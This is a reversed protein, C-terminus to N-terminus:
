VWISTLYRGPVRAQRQEADEEVVGIRGELTRKLLGRGHGRWTSGGGASVRSEVGGSRIGRVGRQRGGDVSQGRQTTRGQGCPRRGRRGRERTCGSEVQIMRARWRPAMPLIQSLLFLCIEGGQSFRKMPMEFVTVSFRCHAYTIKRAGILAGTNIGSFFTGSFFIWSLQAPLWRRRAWFSTLHQLIGLM